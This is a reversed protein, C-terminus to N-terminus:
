RTPPPTAVPPSALSASCAASAENSKQQVQANAGLELAAAYQGAASCPSGRSFLYDGFAVRAQYLRAYSDLYKPNIKVIAAFSEVARQWDAGWASLGRLYQSALYRELLLSDNNRVALAKDFRQVAEEWREEALYQRALNVYSNFLMEEVEDRRYGPEVRHLGELVSVAGDYDKGEYYERAEAMASGLIDTQSLPTLTPTPQPETILELKPQLSALLQAVEADKPYLRRAEELEAIALERNGQQLYAKGKEKHETASNLVIRARDQLGQYLGAAGFGLLMAFVWVAMFIIASAYAWFPDRPKPQLPQAFSRTLVIGEAPVLTQSLAPLPHGNDNSPVAPITPTSAPALAREIDAESKRPEAYPLQPQPMHPMHPMHLKPLHLRHESQHKIYEGCNPCFDYAEQSTTGCSKCQM